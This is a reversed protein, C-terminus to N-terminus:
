MVVTMNATMEEVQWDSDSVIFQWVTHKRVCM